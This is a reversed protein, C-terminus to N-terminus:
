NNDEMSIVVNGTKQGTEVYSFAEAIKELPYERDIVAKFKGQEMLEKVLLITGKIDTPV